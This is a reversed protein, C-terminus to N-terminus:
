MGSGLVNKVGTVKVCGKPTPIVVEKECSLSSHSLSNLYTALVCVDPLHCLNVDLKEPM